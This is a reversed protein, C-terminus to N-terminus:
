RKLLFAFKAMLSIVHDSFETPAHTLVATIPADVGVPSSYRTKPCTERVANELVDVAEELNDRVAIDFSEITTKMCEELGDQRYNGTAEPSKNKLEAMMLEM